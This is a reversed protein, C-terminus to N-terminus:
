TAGGHKVIDIKGTQGRDLRADCDALQRFPTFMERVIKEDQDSGPTTVVYMPNDIYKRVLEIIKVAQARWHQRHEEKYDDPWKGGNHLVAIQEVLDDSLYPPEVREIKAGSPWGIPVGNPWESGPTMGALHVKKRLCPNPACDEVRFGCECHTAEAM